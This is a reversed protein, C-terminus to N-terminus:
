SCPRAPDPEVKGNVADIRVSGLDNGKLHNGCIEGQPLRHVSLGYGKNDILRNGRVVTRVGDDKGDGGLRIGDGAQRISSNDIFVTAIGRSSFGAGDPDKGATCQNREVINGVADEKIDVCEAPVAIDNDHVWNRNSADPESTPNKYDLQEPATGIYIGEGNKSDKSLKFGTRGCRTIRNHAIENGSSHYRLHVCEGKADHLRNGVIHVDAAGILVILKDAKTLEFGRVVLHDHTLEVLNNVKNRGDLVAGRAGAITIPDDPRGSRVSRLPGTYKGAAVAVTDGPQAVALARQIEGFPRDSSGDGTDATAAVHWVRGPEGGGRGTDEGPFLGRRRGSEYFYAVGLIVLVLALGAWRLRLRTRQPRM